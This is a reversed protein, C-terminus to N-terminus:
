NWPLGGMGSFRTDKASPGEYCPWVSIEVYSLLQGAPQM